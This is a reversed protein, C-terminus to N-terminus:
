SQVICVSGANVTDIVGSLLHKLPHHSHVGRLHRTTCCRCTEPGACCTQLTRVLFADKADEPLDVLEQWMAAWIDVSGGAVDEHEEAKADELLQLTLLQSPNLSGERQRQQLGAITHAPESHARPQEAM